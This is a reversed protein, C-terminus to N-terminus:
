AFLVCLRVVCVLFPHEGLRTVFSASSLTSFGLKMKQACLVHLLVVDIVGRAKLDKLCM